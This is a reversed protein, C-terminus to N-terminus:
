QKIVIRDDQQVFGPQTLLQILGRQMAAEVATGMRAFGFLRATERQLDDISLGFHTEVVYA